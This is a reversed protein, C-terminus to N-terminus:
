EATFIAVHRVGVSLARDMGLRNPVLASYVTGSAKKIRQFVESHDALAPVWKPSVFSTVEIHPCGAASLQDIFAVKQDTNVVVSENQLGDRPAVEILQVRQPLSPSM